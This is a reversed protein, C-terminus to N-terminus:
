KKIKFIEVCKVNSNDLYYYLDDNNWKLSYDNSLLIPNGYRILLSDSRYKNGLFHLGIWDDELHWKGTQVTTSDFLVFTSDAMIKLERGAYFCEINVLAFKAKDFLTPSVSQYNGVASLKEGRNYAPIIFYLLLLLIVGISLLIIIIRKYL